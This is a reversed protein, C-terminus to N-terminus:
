IMILSWAGPGSDEATAAIWAPRSGGDPHLARLSALIHVVAFVFARVPAIM